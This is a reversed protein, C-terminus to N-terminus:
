RPWRRAACCRSTAWRRRRRRRPLGRGPRGVHRLPGLLLLLAPLYSVRRRRPLHGPLDRPREVDVLLGGIIGGVGIGLNLLTFNVGFYRQRLQQPIVTAILSQFAPWSMGFAVGNICWPWRPWRDRRRSRWCSTASSWCRCCARAPDAPRRDPRDGLRRSRRRAPGDAAAAGLLLGVDSLAFGRVEHLYVVHFPLVLGTGLFQIVVISLLLQGERPLDRWFASLGPASTTTAMADLRGAVVSLRCGIIPCGCTEASGRPSCVSRRERGLSGSTFRSTPVAIPRTRTAKSSQM